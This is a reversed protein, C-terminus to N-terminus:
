PEFIVVFGGQGVREVLDHLAPVRRRLCALKVIVADAQRQNSVSDSWLGKTRHSRELSSDDAFM